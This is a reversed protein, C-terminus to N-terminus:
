RLRGAATPPVTRIAHRAANRRVTGAPQTTAPRLGPQLDPVFATSADVDYRFWFTGHTDARFTFAVNVSDGPLLGGGPLPVTFTSNLGGGPASDNPADVSLDDVTVVAGGTLTVQESAQAPNVARLDAVTAPQTPVGPRPAGHLESLASVRVKAAVITAGTTNTITRRVVLLPTAGAVIVRNPAVAGGQAPDLLRSIITANHQYPDAAGTPSASGLTPQLGGVSAFTTSVLQFDAANDRTDTAAGGVETRVWAYQETPAGSMAALGAGLHFGTAPGVADTQTLASDPATVEIGGTGLTTAFDSTAINGLSFTSGTLLYSRRTGLVGANVPLTSVSGSTSSVKIGALPVAPGTNLLEVYSDGSGAPGSSRFETVIVEGAYASVEVQASTSAASTHTADGGFIATIANVGFAPLVVNLSASGASIVGSGLTVSAGSQAGTTPVDTFTVTGAPASPGVTATITIAAGFQVSPPAAVSITSTARNVALTAARTDSVGNADVIRVTFTSSGVATPTGTLLGTASNLNLGAPLSGASVSWVNPGIGGSYTLQDSYGTGLEAAPPSTFTLTPGPVITITGAMSAVQNFSDTARVTVTSAGIATPAGSILGTSTDLSLGNPLTGASMSWTYPGTGGTVTPQTTYAVGVEGTAPAFAVTPSDVVVITGSRTTSRSLSDTLQVTIPYSGTTAPTGTIVGTSTNLTLGTPLAGVSVSWVFPGSGDTRAFGSSYSSGLEGAALTGSLTPPPTSTVAFSRSVPTAATWNSDGAQSATISCTGTTIMTIIGASVTCVATTTSTYTVALGSSATAALTPATQTIAADALAPFTITQAAPSPVTLTATAPANDATSATTDIVTAGLLATASISYTSAGAPAAVDFVLTAPSTSSTAFPGLFTLAGSSVTPNAVAVGNVTASGAVYSVGSPLQANLTDVTSFETATSSLTETLHSTGGAAPLTTPSAALSVSLPNTAPQIAPILTSYSSTDTHKIQTGSAIQQVPYVQTSTSTTGTIAFTYTAIYDRATSGLSGLHLLNTFTQAAATGDPSIRLATSVLRFASAPWTGLATPTMILGNPDATTGAGINGTNGEVTVSVTGGLRPTSTSLGVVVGDGTVDQLKNSAAKITEDVGSFGGTTACLLTASASGPVGAYVQVVHNQATSTAASATLHFFAPTQASAAVPGLPMSAPQGQGLGAPGTGLAVSGGTFSSLQVWLDTRAVTSSVNYGAYGSTLAPTIGSDVYFRSSNLSTVTVGNTGNCAFPVASAPNTAM